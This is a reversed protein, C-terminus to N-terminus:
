EYSKSRNLSSFAGTYSGNLVDGNALKFNMNVFISNKLGEISFTGGIIEVEKDNIFVSGNFKYPERESLSANSIEYIGNSLNYTTSSTLSLYIFTEADSLKNTGSILDLEFKSKTDYSENALEVSQLNWVKDGIKFYNDSITKFSISLFFISFLAVLTLLINRM